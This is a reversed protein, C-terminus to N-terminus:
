YKRCQGALFLWPKSKFNLYDSQIM